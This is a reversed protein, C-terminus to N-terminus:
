KTGGPPKIYMCRNHRTCSDKCGAPGRGECMAGPALQFGDPLSAPEPKPPALTYRSGTQGADNSGTCANRHHTAKPCRKNGCDPCVIFTSRRRATDTDAHLYGWGRDDQDSPRTGDRYCSRSGQPVRLVCPHDVAAPITDLVPWLDRDQRLAFSAVAYAVHDASQLAAPYGYGALVFLTADVGM